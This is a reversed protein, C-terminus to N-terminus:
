NTKISTALIANKERHANLHVTRLFRVFLAAFRNKKKESFNMGAACTDLNFISEYFSNKVAFKTFLLCNTHSVIASRFRRYNPLKEM